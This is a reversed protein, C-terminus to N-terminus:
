NQANKDGSFVQIRPDPDLKKLFFLCRWSLRLELVIMVIAATIVTVVVVVLMAIAVIVIVVVFVVM